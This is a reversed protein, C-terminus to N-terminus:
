LQPCAISPAKLRKRDNRISISNFRVSAYIDTGNMKSPMAWSQLNETGVTLFGVRVATGVRAKQDEYFSVPVSVEVLRSEFRPTVAWMNTRELAAGPLKIKRVMLGNVFLRKTIGLDASVTVAAPTWISFQQSKKTSNVIGTAQTSLEALFEEETEANNFEDLVIEFQDNNQIKHRSANKHFRIQGVDVLSAGLKFNPRNLENRSVVYSAGIDIAGGLGNINAAVSSGVGAEDFLNSAVGYDIDAAEQVLFGDSTKNIQTNGKTNFYAGELGTLFKLNVGVSLQEDIQRAYHLGIEGWAMAALKMPRIDAGERLLPLADMQYYGLDSDIRNMSVGSRVATMLGFTHKGAHFMLSPGLVIANMHLRKKRNDNEYDYVLENAGIPRETTIDGRFILDPNSILQPVSAKELFAYNTEAFLGVTGVNLSWKFPSETTTAPNLLASNIGSFNSLKTGLQEQATTPLYVMGMILFAGFFQTWKM